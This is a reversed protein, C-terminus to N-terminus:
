NQSQRLAKKIEDLHEEDHEIMFEVLQIVSGREDGWTYLLDGPFQDAKIDIISAKFDKRAQEWESVIQQTSLKRQESVAQKNFDTEDESIGPIFYETGRRYAQLSKTVERDWTAIHGLIDRIRWDTDEYVQQELDVGEIISQIDSHTKTLRNLLNNKDDSM